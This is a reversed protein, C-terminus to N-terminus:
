SLEEMAQNVTIEGKELRDLVSGAPKGIKVDVDLFSLQKAIKNLRNKVTPYSIGFLREMEKISGHTRIFAAAFIQDETALRAMPPLEFNGEIYMDTNKIGVRQVMLERNGTMKTLTQWDKAM